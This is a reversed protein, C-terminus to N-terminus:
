SAHNEIEIERLNLDHLVLDKSPDHATHPIIETHRQTKMCVRLDTDMYSIYPQMKQAQSNVHSNVGLRDNEVLHGLWSPHQHAKGTCFIGFDGAYAGSFCHPCYNKKKM